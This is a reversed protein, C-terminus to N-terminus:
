EEEEKDFDRKNVLVLQGTKLNAQGAQALYKEKDPRSLQKFAYEAQMARRKNAWSEAYILKVPRRLKVRTYKAGKGSNHTKLRQALDVTYGGYLSGDNCYLVYFYHGKHAM